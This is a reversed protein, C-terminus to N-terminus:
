GVAAEVSSLMVVRSINEPLIRHVDTIHQVNRFELAQPENPHWGIYILDLRGHIFPGEVRVMDGAVLSRADRPRFLKQFMSTM